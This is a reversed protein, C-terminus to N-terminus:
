TEEAGGFCCPLDESTGIYRRGADVLHSSLEERGQLGSCRQVGVVPDRALDSSLIEL